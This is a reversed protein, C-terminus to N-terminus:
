RVARRRTNHLHQPQCTVDGALKSTEADLRIQLDSFEQLLQSRSAAEQERALSM